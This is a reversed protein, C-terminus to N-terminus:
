AAHAPEDGLPRRPDCCHDDLDNDQIALETMAADSHVRASVRGRRKSLDDTKIGRRTGAVQGLLIAVQSIVGPDRVTVALGQRRCSAELWSLYPRTDPGLQKAPRTISLTRQTVNAPQQQPSPPM